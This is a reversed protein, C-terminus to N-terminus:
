VRRKLNGLALQQMVEAVEVLPKSLIELLSNMGSIIMGFEGPHRSSEVRASLM